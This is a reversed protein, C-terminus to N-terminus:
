KNTRLRMTVQLCNSRNCGWPTGAFSRQAKSHGQKCLQTQSGTKIIKDTITKMEGKEKREKESAGTTLTTKRHMYQIQMHGVWQRRTRVMSKSAAQCKGISAASGKIVTHKTSLCLDRLALWSTPINERVESFTLGNRYTDMWTCQEGAIVVGKSTVISCFTLVM